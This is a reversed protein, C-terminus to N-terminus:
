VRSTAFPMQTMYVWWDWLRLLNQPPVACLFKLGKPLSWLAYNAQKLEKPGTWSAQIEHISTGLLNACAALQRFTGSLDCNSDTTFNYSHKSFFERRAEKVMDSHWSFVEAHSPKLTKFWLPTEQRKPSLPEGPMAKQTTGGMPMSEVPDPSPHWRQPRHSQNPVPTSSAGM